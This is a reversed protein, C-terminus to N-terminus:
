YIGVASLSEYLSVCLHVSWVSPLNGWVGEWVAERPPGWHGM